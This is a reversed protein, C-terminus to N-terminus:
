GSTQRIRKRFLSGLALAYLAMGGVFAIPSCALAIPWAWPSRGDLSAVAVAGGFLALPGLLAGGVVQTARSASNLWATGLYVMPVTLLGGIVLGPVFFTAYASFQYTFDEASFRWLGYIMGELVAICGAIPLYLLAYMALALLLLSGHQTWAIGHM